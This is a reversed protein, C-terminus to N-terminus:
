LMFGDGRGDGYVDFPSCYGHGLGDGTGNVMESGYRIGFNDVVGYGCGCGYNTSQGRWWNMTNDDGWGSEWFNVEFECNDLIWDFLVGVTVPDNCGLVLAFPISM